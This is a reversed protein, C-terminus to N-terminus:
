EDFLDPREDRGQPWIADATKIMDSAMPATMVMHEGTIPHDLELRAAHLLPRHVGHTKSLKKNWDALGYVDDGYIPTHRDQLHVRIQHTRGTEIRVQVVSLKGDFALTDVFSLARRGLVSPPKSAMADAMMQGRVVRNASNKASPDPVVRMRQRHVPHRGIPKDIVVRNGPNGVTIAAYTKKVKRAAFAESLAALASRTKAVVLIGTTGKDLRHVIGPRLFVTEGDTGEVDVGEGQEAAVTGDQHVFEGSGHPSKALYHALANVVTGDWNGAAPHVVMGAAKNIIIMHEDEFLIDLPLDQAIIEEPRDDAVHEVRLVDGASVKHSKRKMVTFRKGDGGNSVSVKGDKVLSGCHSRSLEPAFHHIALDIRKDDLENTIEYLKIDEDPSSSILDDDGDDDNDDDSVNLSAEEKELQKEFAEIAELDFSNKPPPKAFLESTSPLSDSDVIRAPKGTSPSFGSAGRSLNVVAHLAVAVVCRGVPAGRRRRRPSVYTM